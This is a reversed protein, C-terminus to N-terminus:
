PYDRRIEAVHDAIELEDYLQSLRQPDVGTLFGCKHPSVQYRSRRRTQGLGIRLTENVVEKFPRNEHRAMAKLRAAITDDITLTTRM